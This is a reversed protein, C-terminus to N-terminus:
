KFVSFHVHFSTFNQVNQFFIAEIRYHPGFHRGNSFLRIKMKLIVSECHLKKYRAVPRWFPKEAFLFFVPRIFNSTSYSRLSEFFDFDEFKESTSDM